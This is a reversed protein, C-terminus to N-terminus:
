GAVTVAGAEILTVNQGRVGVLSVRLLSMPRKLRDLYAFPSQRRQVAPRRTRRGRLRASRQVASPLGPAPRRHCQPRVCRLYSPPVGSLLIQDRRQRGQRLMPRNSGAEVRRSRRRRVHLFHHYRVRLYGTRVRSIPGSSRRLLRARTSSKNATISRSCRIPANANQASAFSAILSSMRRQTRRGFSPIQSSM